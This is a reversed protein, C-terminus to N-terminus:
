HMKVVTYPFRQGKWNKGRLCQLHQLITAKLFCKQWPHITLPNQGTMSTYILLKASVLLHATTPRLEWYHCLWNYHPKTESAFIRNQDASAQIWDQTSKYTGISEFSEVQGGWRKSGGVGKSLTPKTYQSVKQEACQVQPSSRKHIEM